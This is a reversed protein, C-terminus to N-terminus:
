AAETEAPGGIFIRSLDPRLAHRSIGTIREVDIVREAPILVTGEEWRLLTTKNVGLGASLAELTM